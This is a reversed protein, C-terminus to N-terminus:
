QVELWILLLTTVSLADLFVLRFRALESRLTKVARHVLNRVVQYGLTMVTSIEEYSLAEYFRLFVAERQRNPLQNVANMLLEDQLATSELSLLAGDAPHSEADISFAYDTQQQKTRRNAVKHKLLSRRLATILYIKVSKVEALQRRQQWLAVFLDQISDKVLDRDSEITLGYKFLLTSYREFLRAFDRESGTKFRHWVLEDMYDPHESDALM